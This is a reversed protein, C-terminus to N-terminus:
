LEVVRPQAKVVVHKKQLETDQTPSRRLTTITVMKKDSDRFKRTVEYEDFVCNAAPDFFVRVIKRRVNTRPEIYERDYKKKSEAKDEAM